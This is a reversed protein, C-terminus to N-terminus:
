AAGRPIFDAASGADLREAIRQLETLTFDADGRLKRRLTARPIGVAESASKESHGAGRIAEAVLNGVREAYTPTNM